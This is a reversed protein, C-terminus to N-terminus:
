DFPNEVVTKTKPWFCDWKTPKSWGLEDLRMQIQEDSVLGAGDIFCVAQADMMCVMFEQKQIDPDEVIGQVAAEILEPALTSESESPKELLRRIVEPDTSSEAIAKCSSVVDTTISCGSVLLLMSIVSIGTGACLFQSRLIKM